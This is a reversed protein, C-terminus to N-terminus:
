LMEKGQIALRMTQELRNRIDEEWIDIVTWGEKKLMEKQILDSGRKTVGRHWYEGMVRLAIGLEDLTFDVVAGGFEHRGGAMWSQFSFVIKNRSLWQAVMSEIDTM